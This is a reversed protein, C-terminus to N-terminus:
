RTGAGVQDTELVVDRVTDGSGWSIRVSVQYLAVPVPPRRAMGTQQITTAGVRVVRVRWHYGHGDDGQNDGPTLMMGHTTAALHTRARAIAEEYRSAADSAGLGTAGARM